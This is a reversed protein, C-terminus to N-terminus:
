FTFMRVETESCYPRKKHTSTSVDTRAIQSKSSFNTVRGVVPEKFYRFRASYHYLIKISIYRKSYELYPTSIKLNTDRPSQKITMFIHGSSNSLKYINNSFMVSKRTIPFDDKINRSGSVHVNISNFYDNRYVHFM